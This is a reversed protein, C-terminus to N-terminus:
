KPKPGRNMGGTGGSSIVCVLLFVTTNGSLSEQNMILIDKRKLHDCV